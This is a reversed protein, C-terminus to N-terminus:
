LVFGDSCIMHSTASAPLISNELWDSMGTAQRAVLFWSFGTM